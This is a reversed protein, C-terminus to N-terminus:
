WYSTTVVVDGLVEAQCAAREDRDYNSRHHVREEAPVVPSLHERGRIIRMRCWSCVAVGGCSQAVPLGAVRAAHLLTEGRRITVTKGSPHFTVTADPPFLQLQDAEKRNM